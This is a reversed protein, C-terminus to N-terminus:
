NDKSTVEKLIPKIQFFNKIKEDSDKDIRGIHKAIVYGDDSFDHQEITQKQNPQKAIFVMICTEIGVNPQFLDKPLTIVKLLKHKKLLEERLNNFKQGIACSLPLISALIGGNKMHNLTELVFNLEYLKSKKQSFPPNMLVKDYCNNITKLKNFCDDCYINSSGDGHLMMNIGALTANFDNKEIGIIHNNKISNQENIDSTQQLMYAMANTLFTGSGCCPDLLYDDKKLDILQCM